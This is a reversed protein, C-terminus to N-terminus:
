GNEKKPTFPRQIMIEKVVRNYYDFLKETKEKNAKIEEMKALAALRDERLISGIREAKVDHKKVKELIRCLAVNDKKLQANQAILEAKTM